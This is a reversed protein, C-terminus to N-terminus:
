PRKEFVVKGGKITTVVNVLDYPNQLPDGKVIVIDALKGAELTGFEQGHLTAKAADQTLIRVIDQPSFVLALGRLEDVLTEKPAWQTDTGFGYTM